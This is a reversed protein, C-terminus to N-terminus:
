EPSCQHCSWDGDVEVWGEDRAEERLVSNADEDAPWVRMALVNGCRSCTLMRLEGWFRPDPPRGEREDYWRKLAGHGYGYPAGAQAYDAMAYQWPADLQGTAGMAGAGGAVGVLASVGPHVLAGRAPEGASRRGVAGRPAVV